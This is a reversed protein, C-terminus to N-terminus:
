YLPYTKGIEPISPYDPHGERVNPWSWSDIVTDGGCGDYPCMKLGGIMRHEGRKYARECHLCWRYASTRKDTSDDKESDLTKKM